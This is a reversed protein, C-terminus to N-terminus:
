PVESNSNATAHKPSASSGFRFRSASTRHSGTIIEVTSGRRGDSQAPQTQPQPIKDAAWISFEEGYRDLIAACNEATNIRVNPKKLRTP